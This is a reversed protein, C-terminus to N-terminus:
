IKYDIFLRDFWLYKEIEGKIINKIWRNKKKNDKFNPGGKIKNWIM